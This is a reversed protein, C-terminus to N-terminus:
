LLENNFPSAIAQAYLSCRGGRKTVNFYYLKSARAGDDDIAKQSHFCSFCSKLPFSVSILSTMLFVILSGKEVSLLLEECLSKDPPRGGKVCVCGRISKREKLACVFNGCM